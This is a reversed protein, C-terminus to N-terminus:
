DVLPVFVAFPHVILTVSGADYQQIIATRREVRGVVPAAFAILPGILVSVYQRGRLDHAYCLIHFVAHPDTGTCAYQDDRGLHVEHVGVCAVADDNRAIVAGSEAVVQQAALLDVAHDDITAITHPNTRLVRTYVENLVISDGHRM